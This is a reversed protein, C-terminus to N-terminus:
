AFENILRITQSHTHRFDQHNEVCLTKESFIYNQKKKRLKSSKMEKGHRIPKALVEMGTNFLLPSFLYGQKNRVESSISKNRKEDSVTSHAKWLHDKNHQPINTVWNHRVSQSGVSQLRGPEEPGHLPGSLFLPTLLWERRWPSKKDWSDFGQRRCRM